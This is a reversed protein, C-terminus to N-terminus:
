FQGLYIRNALYARGEEEVEKNAWIGGLLTVEFDRCGEFLFCMKKRLMKKAEKEPCWV